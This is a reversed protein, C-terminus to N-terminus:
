KIVAKESIVKAANAITQIDKKDPHTFNIFLFGGTCTIEDIIDIGKELLVKRIDSQSRLSTSVSSTVLVAKNVLSSTLKEAYSLLEPNCKGGYIGGVLFLLDTKEPQSSGSIKKTETGLEKGIAEAIKRSHQTKTAYVVSVNKM